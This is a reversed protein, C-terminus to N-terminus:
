VGSEPIIRELAEVIKEKESYAELGLEEILANLMRRYYRAVKEVPMIAKSVLYDFFEHGLVAVAKRPDQEYIFITENKVEGSLCSEEMPSFSVSLEFGHGTLKKLRELESQLRERVDRNDNKNM